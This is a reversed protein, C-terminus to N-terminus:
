RQRLRQSITAPPEDGEASGNRVVGLLFVLAVLAMPVVMIGGYQLACNSLTTLGEWITLQAPIECQYPNM